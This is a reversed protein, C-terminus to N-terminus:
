HQKQEQIFRQWESAQFANMVRPFKNQSGLKGLAAMFEYFHSTPFRHMEPQKLSYKRVSRYYL